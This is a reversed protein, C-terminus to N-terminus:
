LTVDSVTNTVNETKEDTVDTGNGDTEDERRKKGFRQSSHTKLSISVLTTIHSNDDSDSPCKETKEVNGEEGKGDTEDEGARIKELRQGSHNNLPTLTLPVQHSTDYSDSPGKKEGKGKVPSSNMGYRQTPSHNNTKM